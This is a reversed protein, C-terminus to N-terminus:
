KESFVEDWRTSKWLTLEQHHADLDMFLAALGEKEALEKGKESGLVLLATAWGDAEGCSEEMVSVSVTEHTIPYGTRPDIIHSYRQGEKEFFNRYSGSTALSGQELAVLRMIDAVSRPDVIGVKWAEGRHNEGLVRVEGGIDVLYHQVGLGELLEAMLDVGYGKAVASLNVEGHTVGKSVVYNERQLSWRGFGVGKMAEMVQAHEPKRWSSSEEGFGWLRIVPALTPDLAGLSRQHLDYTLEMVKFFYPTLEHPETSLQQNFSTIVSHPDYTSLEENFNKLLEEVQSQLEEESVLSKLPGSGGHYRVKYYTGMTSGEFSFAGREGRVGLYLLWVGVLLFLAILVGIFRQMDVVPQKNSKLTGLFPWKRPGKASGLNQHERQSLSQSALGEGGLIM